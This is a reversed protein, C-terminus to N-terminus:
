VHSLVPRNPCTSLDPYETWSYPSLLRRPLTLYLLACFTISHGERRKAYKFKGMMTPHLSITIKCLAMLYEVSIGCVLWHGTGTCIKSPEYLHAFRTGTLMCLRQYYSRQKSKMKHNIPNFIFHSKSCITKKVKKFFVGTKGKMLVEGNSWVWVDKRLRRCYIAKTAQLMLHLISQLFQDHDVKIVIRGNAWKSLKGSSRLNKRAHLVIKPLDSSKVPVFDASIM